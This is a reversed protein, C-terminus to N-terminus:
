KVTFTGKTTINKLQSSIMQSVIEYSGPTDIVKSFEEGVPIINNGSEFCQEFFGDQTVADNKGSAYITIYLDGCNFSSDNIKVQIEVPETITYQKSLGIIEIPLSPSTIDESSPSTIDESSPSSIDESNSVSWMNLERGPKQLVDALVASGFIISFIVPFVFVVFVRKTAM